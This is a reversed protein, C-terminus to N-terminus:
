VYLIINLPIIGLSLEMGSYQKAKSRTATVKDAHPYVLINILGIACLYSKCIHFNIM